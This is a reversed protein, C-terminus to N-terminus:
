ELESYISKNKELEELFGLGDLKPMMVDLLILNYGGKKAKVVGEEGDVATDVEFGAETLVEEYLDRIYQDDEVVLIRKNASMVLLKANNILKQM